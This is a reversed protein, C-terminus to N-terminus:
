EKVTFPYLKIFELLGLPSSFEIIAEPAPQKDTNVSKVRGIPIGAPFITSFPSTLVIDGPKVAPDREFFELVASDQTQGRMVGMQRTRSIIAGVQSTPDSILLIRSSHTSVTTVRGVLGGPGVAIAGVKVGESSGRGVMIQQWWSDAGRGIVTAWLGSSESIGSREGILSKFQQNQNELETIRYQLERVRADQLEERNAYIVQFPRSLLEYADMFVVGETQRITWALGLGVSVVALQFSYRSWWRRVSEM